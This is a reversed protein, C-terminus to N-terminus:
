HELVVRLIRVKDKQPFVLGESQSVGAVELVPTLKVGWVWGVNEVM